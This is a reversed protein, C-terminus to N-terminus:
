KNFEVSVKNAKSSRNWFEVSRAWHFAGNLRIFKNIFKNVSYDFSQINCFLMEATLIEERAYFVICPNKIAASQSLNHLLFFSLINSNWSEVRFSFTEFWIKESSLFVVACDFAMKVEYASFPLFLMTTAQSSISFGRTHKKKVSTIESAIEVKKLSSNTSSLKFIGTLFSILKWAKLFARTAKSRSVSLYM